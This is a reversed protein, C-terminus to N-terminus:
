RFNYSRLAAALREGISAETEVADRSATVEIRVDGGAERFEEISENLETIAKELDEVADKAKEIDEVFEGTEASIAVSIERNTDTEEDTNSM